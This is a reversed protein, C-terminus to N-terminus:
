DNVREETKYLYGFNGRIKDVTRSLRGQAVMREALSWVAVGHPRGLREAIQKRSLPKERCADAIMEMTEATPRRNM